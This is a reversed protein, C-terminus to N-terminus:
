QSTIRDIHFKYLWPIRQDVPLVEPSPHLGLTDLKFQMNDHSNVEKLTDKSTLRSVIASHVDTDPLLLKITTKVPKTRHHEFKPYSRCDPHVMFIFDRADANVDITDSIKFPPASPLNALFGSLWEYFRFRLFETRFLHTTILYIYEDAKMYVGIRRDIDHVFWKGQITINYERWDAYQSLDDRTVLNAPYYNRINYDRNIRLLIDNRRTNEARNIKRKLFVHDLYTYMCVLQEQLANGMRKLRRNNRDDEMENLIALHGIVYQIFTELSTGARGLQADTMREFETASTEDFTKFKINAAQFVFEARNEPTQESTYLRIMDDTMYRKLAEHSRIPQRCFPCTCETPLREVCWQHICKACARHGGQCGLDILAILPVDDFCVECKVDDVNTMEADSASSGGARTNRTSKSEDSLRVIDKKLFYKPSGPENQKRLLRKYHTGNFRILQETVQNRIM